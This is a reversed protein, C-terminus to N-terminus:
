KQYHPGLRKWHQWYVAASLVLAYTAGACILAFLFLVICFFVYSNNLHEHINYRLMLEPRAFLVYMSTLSALFLFRYSKLIKTRDGKTKVLMAHNWWLLDHTEFNINERFLLWGYPLFLILLLTSVIFPYSWIMSRVFGTQEVYISFLLLDIHIDFTYSAWYLISFFGAVFFSNKMVLYYIYTDDYDKRLYPYFINRVRGELM